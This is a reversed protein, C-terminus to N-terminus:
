IKNSSANSSSQNNEQRKQPQTGSGFSPIVLKKTSPASTKTQQQVPKDAKEVPKQQVSNKAAEIVPKLDDSHTKTLKFMKTIEAIEEPKMVPVIIIAKNKMEFHYTNGQNTEMAKVLDHMNSIKVGNVSDIVNQGGMMEFGETSDSNFVKSLIVWQENASKKPFNVLMGDEHNRFLNFSVGNSSELFERTLPQFFMGNKIYFCPDQTYDKRGALKLEGSLYKLVVPIQLKKGQRLVEFNVTDGIEKQTILYRYDLRECINPFTNITGDNQIKNGDISLIIDDVQLGNMDAVPDITRVRVGSMDQTMGYKSRFVPNLMNQVDLPLAPIGVFPAGTNITKLARKLFHQIVPMSVLYGAGEAIDPDYAQFAVGVQNGNSDFAPGGSNGANVPASTMSLLLDGDGHTYHSVENASITGSTTTLEEGVWPYGVVTVQKGIKQFDGLSVNKAKARFEPDDVQLIALDCDPDCAVVKAQYKQIGSGLRVRTKINQPGAVHACTLILGRAADIVSGSGFGGENSEPGTYLADYDLESGTIFIKVISDNFRSALESKHETKKHKIQKDDDQNSKRKLM